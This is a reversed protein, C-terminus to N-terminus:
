GTGLPHVILDDQFFSGVKEVNWIKVVYIRKFFTYAM